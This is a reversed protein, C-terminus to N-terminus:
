ASEKLLLAAEIKLGEVVERRLQYLNRWVVYGMNLLKIREEVIEIHDGFDRRFFNKWLENTIASLNSKNDEIRALEQLSCQPLIKELLHSEVFEVNGILSSNDFQVSCLDVLSQQQPGEM